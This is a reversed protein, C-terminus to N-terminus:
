KTLGAMLQDKKATAAKFLVNLSDIQVKLAAIEAEYYKILSAKATVYDGSKLAALKKTLTNLKAKADTLTGHAGDIDVIKAKIAALATEFSMGLSGNATNTYSEMIRLVEGLGTKQQNLDATKAAYEDEIAAIQLDLDNQALSYDSVVKQNAKDAAVIDAYLQQWEAAHTVQTRKQEYLYESFFMDNALGDGVVTTIRYPRNTEPDNPIQYNYGNYLSSYVSRVIWGTENDMMSEKWEKYTIAVLPIVPYVTSAWENYASGWIPTSAELYKKYLGGQALYDAGVQADDAMALYIELGGEKKIATQAKEAEATGVVIKVTFGDLIERQDLFTVIANTIVTTQAATPEKLAEYETIKKLILTRADYKNTANTNRYDYKYADAAAIFDDKAKTWGAIVADYAKKADEKNTKLVKLNQQAEALDNGELVNNKVIELLSSWEEQQNDGYPVYGSAFLADKVSPNMMLSFGNPFTNEQKDVDYVAIKKFAKAYETNTSYDMAERVGWYFEDQLAAPVTLKLETKLNYKNTLEVKKQTPAVLKETKEVNLAKIQAMLSTQKAKIGEYKAQWDAMPTNAITQYEVLTKELGSVVGTQFVIQNEIGKIVVEPNNEFEADAKNRMAEALNEQEQALEEALGKLGSVSVTAGPVYTNTNESWVYTQYSFSETNLVKYLEAAYASEKYAVLAVEVDVLAKKYDAEALITQQQLRFMEAKFAEASKQAEEKWYAKDKESQAALIETHIKAQAAVEQKYLADAQLCAAQANKIAAEAAQVVAKARLLEAKAGRLETIGAPEENEICGTFTATTGSLLLAAVLYTWKRM